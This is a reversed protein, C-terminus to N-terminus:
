REQWRYAVRSNERFFRGAAEVGKGGFYERAVRLVEGYPGTKDSVPWNSGYLLRRAGFADWLTDLGPRYFSAETVLRGERRRLVNSVKVFVNALPELARLAAEEPPPDFPMHDIVIRLEPIERGLKAVDGLMAEPGLADLMLGCGALRRLDAQFQRRELGERIAGGGLRIGLFLRNRRFRDLEAEFGPKGPALHGVLGLLFRDHGALELVWQNDEVWPSAEVVVTGTVGLPGAMEKFERPLVTRYLLTDSQPPWPVGQKRRPDYFHTHADVIGGEGTALGGAAALLERRTM